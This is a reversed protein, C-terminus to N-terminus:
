SAWTHGAAVKTGMNAKAGKQHRYIGLCWQQAYIRRPVWGTDMQAKPVRGTDM